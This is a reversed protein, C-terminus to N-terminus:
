EMVSAVVGVVLGIVSVIVWEFGILGAQSMVFAALLVFFSSAGVARAKGFRDFLSFLLLWLAALFGAFLWGGAQTNAWAVLDSFNHIDEFM